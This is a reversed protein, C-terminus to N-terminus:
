VPTASKVTAMNTRNVTPTLTPITGGLKVTSTMAFRM